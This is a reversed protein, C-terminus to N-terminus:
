EAPSRQVAPFSGAKTLEAEKTDLLAQVLPTLLGREEIAPLLMRQFDELQVRLDIRGLAELVTEPTAEGALMHHMLRLRCFMFDAMDSRRSTTFFSYAEDLLAPDDHAFAWCALEQWYNPGRDEEPVAAALQRLENLALPQTGRCDAHLRMLLRTTAAMARSVPGPQDAACDQLVARYAALAEAQEGLVDLVIVRYCELRLHKAAHLDPDAETQLSARAAAYCARVRQLDLAYHAVLMPRIYAEFWNAVARVM